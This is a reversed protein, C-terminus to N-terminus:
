NVEAVARSVDAPRMGQHVPLAVLRSSLDVAAPFEAGDVAEPLPPWRYVGRLTESLQALLREPEDAFVPCRWPCVGRPLEPFLPDVGDVISLEELWRGYVARRVGITSTPDTRSLHRVATWSVPDTAWSRDSVATDDDRDGGRGDAAADKEHAADGQGNRLASGLTCVIRRLPPHRRCAAHLWEEAEYTADAISPPAVRGPPVSPGAGDTAAVVENTSAHVEDTIAGAADSVRNVDNRVAGADPTVADVDNVFLVAGNRVAFTKHLSTFGVHGHTGLLRGDATSLAGHANDEVIPVGADDGIDLLADLDPQPFGFYDVALIVVTDRDLRERVAALDPRLERTVPYYRPHLGRARLPKPVGHPVVAPLLVNDGRECGVLDLARGLAAKGSTSLRCRTAGYRRMYAFVDEEPRRVLSGLSPTPEGPILAGNM